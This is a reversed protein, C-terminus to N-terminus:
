WVINYQITNYQGINIQAAMRGGGGRYPGQAPTPCLSGVTKPGSCCPPPRTLAFRRSGRRTGASSGASALAVGGPPPHASGAGKRSVRYQGPSPVCMYMHCIHLLNYDYENNNLHTM